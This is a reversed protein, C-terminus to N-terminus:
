VQEVHIRGPTTLSFERFEHVFHAQDFYGFNQAVAKLHQVGSRQIETLCQQFRVIRSFLKMSIGVHRRFTDSLHRETYGTAGVIREIPCMGWSKEIRGVVYDVV